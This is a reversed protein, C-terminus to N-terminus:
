SLWGGRRRLSLPRPGIKRPDTPLVGGNFVVREGGLYTAILAGLDDISEAPNGEVVILDALKGAEITGVKDAVGLAEAARSTVAAIATLPDLGLWGVGVAAGRHLEAFHSHPVGADSTIFANLGRAFMDGELEFRRKLLPTLPAREPDARWADYADRMHGVLTISVHTGQRAMEDLLGEDFEWVGAADQWNCHEITTVGATVSNRIGEISLAHSAVQRELRHAEEVLATMEAATYQARFINSNRTMRGGTAMVKIVDADDEVLQRVAKRIEAEGDVTLGFFHCHGGTTTIPMGSAIIRPGRTVGASIADRLAQIMTGPGGCDRVTTVGGSLCRHGNEIAMAALRLDDSEVYEALVDDVTGLASFALHVHGDILGPLLTGGPFEHVEFSDVDPRSGFTERTTVAVIRDNEIVVAADSRAAAGSGDILRDALIVKRGSSAKSADHKASM